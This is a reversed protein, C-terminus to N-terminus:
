RPDRVLLEVNRDKRKGRPDTINSGGGAITRQPDNAALIRGLSGLQAETFASAATGPAPPAIPAAQELITGFISLTGDRNDLIEIERSQQPWDAHSATNIQWFGSRRNRARYSVVDNRHTHGVVLAVVNPYRLLLDRITQKGTLGLHIPTSARPDVDCGVQQDPTCAGAAEDNAGNDMTGLTHHGFVVVLQHKRKAKKLERELWRYQPNDVNGDAGGGEAVTDLSIFRVGRTTTAYYSATGKSAANEKPDVKSFGHGAIRKYEAKSILRRDPDPPTLGAHALIESQFNPDSVVKVFFQAGTVSHPDFENFPFPKVCTTALPRLLSSSAPINGQILGDHNGRSILWPVRLGQARFPQQARDLLGPYRPFTAFPGIGNPPGVDPNWFDAYRDQVRGPYDNYDQVGTYRRAAVDANLKAIQEASGQSCPNDASVPKGSFPDITGGSLDTVFWRTENLQQNDALDGTTIALQLKARKGNGQRVQSTSNANMNRVTQDFVQTLLVDSPRWASEIPKGAPDAFEARLPSMEDAIQPDTLQGFFVLSRRRSARGKHASGFGASRTVYKEGPGAALGVYGTGSQRVITEQLTTRGLPDALAFTACVLVLVSALALAPRFIRM